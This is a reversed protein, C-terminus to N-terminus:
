DIVYDDTAGLSRAISAGRLVVETEEADALASVTVVADVRFVDFESSSPVIVSHLDYVGDEVSTDALEVLPAQGNMPVLVLRAHTPTSGAFPRESEPFWTFDFRSAGADDEIAYSGRIRTPWWSSYTPLSVEVDERAVATHYWSVWEDTGTPRVDIRVCVETGLAVTGLDLAESLPLSKSTITGTQLNRDNTTGASVRVDHLGSLGAPELVLEMEVDVTTPSASVFSFFTGDLDTSASSELRPVPYAGMPPKRSFGAQLPMSHAAPAFEGAVLAATSACTWYRRRGDLLVEEMVAKFWVAQGSEVIANPADILDPVVVSPLHTLNQVLYADDVHPSAPLGGVQRWIWIKSVHYTAGTSSHVQYEGHDVVFDGAGDVTFGIEPGLLGTDDGVQPQVAMSEAPGKAGPSTEATGLAHAVFRSRTVCPAHFPRVLPAHVAFVPWAAVFALALM